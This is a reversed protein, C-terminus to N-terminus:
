VRPFTTPAIGLSTSPKWFPEQTVMIDEMFNVKSMEEHVYVRSGCDLAVELIPKGKLRLSAKGM